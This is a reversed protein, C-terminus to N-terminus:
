QASAHLRFDIGAERNAKATAALDLQDVPIDRHHGDLVNVEAQAQRM